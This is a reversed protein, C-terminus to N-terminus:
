DPLYVLSQDCVDDTPYIFGHSIVYMMLQTSLGIVSWMCRVLESVSVNGLHPNLIKKLNDGEKATLLISTLRCCFTVCRVTREKMPGTLNM